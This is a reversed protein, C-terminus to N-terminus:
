LSIMILQGLLFQHYSKFFFSNALSCYKMNGIHKTWKIIICWSGWICWLIKMTATQTKMKSKQFTTFKCQFNIISWFNLTTKWIDSGAFVGWFHNLAWLTGKPTLDWKKPINAPRIIQFAARFNQDIMLKWHLNAFKWFWLNFFFKFLSNKM